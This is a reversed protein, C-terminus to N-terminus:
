KHFQRMHYASQEAMRAYTQSVPCARRVACGRDLCDTGEVTDLFAHCAPVDYGAGTLAGAPCATLCPAACGDCPRASAPPLELAEKLALAGRFSVMLGQEAHVLLRVPSDWMRGTRLAWRYFPHWPPGGFPFLAKAGLDCALRGIVRRSWRDVPDAAGDWEPQSTVHPWYGAGGPGILLLTRTGGPLTDDDECVFGGLVALRHDALRAEIDPLTLPVAAM